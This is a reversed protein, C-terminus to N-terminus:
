ILSLLIGHLFAARKFDVDEQRSWTHLRWVKFTPPSQDALDENKPPPDDGSPKDAAVGTEAAQRESSGAAGKRVSPETGEADETGDAATLGHDQPLIVGIFFTLTPYDLSWFYHVPLKVSKLTRRLRASVEM